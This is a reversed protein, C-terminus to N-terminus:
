NFEINIWNEAEEISKFELRTGDLIRDASYRSLDEFKELKPRFCVREGCVEEKLIIGLDGKSGAVSVGRVLGDLYLRENDPIDFYSQHDMHKGSAIGHLGAVLSLFTMKRSVKREYDGPYHGSEVLITSHGMRQFNDGTATPYFEDTYRGIRGPIRTSLPEIMASIVSMTRIRGDTVTRAEDESPALFSMTATQPPEGVSFITRQDHLNFCYGPDTEALQSQLILSEPAKKALVDRNLDIGQSNVRTYNLAGDPNLVPLVVITCNKLIANRMSGLFGPEALWKFLDLVAKTGTSENGHMQTWMLIRNGGSGVIVRQISRAEYSLGAESVSFLSADLERLLPSCQQATVRRETIRNEYNLDHWGDLLDWKENEM